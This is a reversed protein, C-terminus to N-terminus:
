LLTNLIYDFAASYAEQPSNYFTEKFTARKGKWIYYVISNDPLQKPMIVIHIGYNVRLWEVVLWQEPALYYEQRQKNSFNSYNFSYISYTSNFGSNTIETGKGNIYQEGSSTYYNFCKENFSKEKLLKAQEFSVYTSKIEM